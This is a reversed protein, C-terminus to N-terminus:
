AAHRFCLENDGYQCDDPHTIDRESGAQAVPSTVNVGMELLAADALTDTINQFFMKLSSMGPETVTESRLATVTQVEVGMELLAADALMDTIKNLLRKM